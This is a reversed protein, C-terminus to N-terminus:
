WTLFLLLADHLFNHLAHPSIREQCFDKIREKRRYANKINLFLFILCGLHILLLFLLFDFSRYYSALIKRLWDLLLLYRISSRKRSHEVEIRGVRFKVWRDVGLIFVQHFAEALTLQLEELL